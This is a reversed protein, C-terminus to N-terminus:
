ITRTPTSTDTLIGLTFGSPTDSTFLLGGRDEGCILTVPTNPTAVVDGRIEYTWAGQFGTPNTTNRAFSVLIQRDDNNAQPATSNVEITGCPLTFTRDTGAPVFDPMACGNPGTVKISFQDVGPYWIEIRQDKTITTAWNFTVSKTQGASIATTAVIKDSGENGAASTVVVGAAGASSLAQEYNSTGDRAGFYSGLSLNVVLPKGLAAAKAKMWVIADIVSNSGGTGGAIANASLIDAKPAMGVFRYAPLGNGTQQGNGAAIGGVHTGHNGTSPQTCGGNGNIADNLMQVTCEGGYSFGSPPSGAAGTERQDWLALIRTTGDTNRFSLHRFDLGDDVIGVIVGAGTAGTLNPSVGSRILNARTAPVSAALRQPVIKESEMYQIDNLSVLTALSPAPITVTAVTGLVANVIGGASRIADLTKSDSFRVLIKVVDVKEPLRMLKYTGDGMKEIGAKSMAGSIKADFKQASFAPVSLGTLALSALFLGVGHVRLRFGM